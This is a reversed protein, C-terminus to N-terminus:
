LKGPHKSMSPNIAMENQLLIEAKFNKTFSHHFANKNNCKDHTHLKQNDKTIM